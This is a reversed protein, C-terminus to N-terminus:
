CASWDAQTPHYTVKIVGAEVAELAAHVFSRPVCDVRSGGFIGIHIPLNEANYFYVKFEQDAYASLWHRAPVNLPIRDGAEMEVCYIGATVPIETVTRCSSMDWPAPEGTVIREVANRADQGVLWINAPGVFVLLILALMLFVHAPKLRWDPRTPAPQTGAGPQARKIKIRPLRVWGRMMAVVGVIILALVIAQWAGEM